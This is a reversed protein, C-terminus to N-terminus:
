AGRPRWRAFGGETNIVQGTIWRAEDTALWAILRAPDDPEGIRGSPFMPESIRRMEETFYGTDVPGPNVTNVRIGADALQDALTMTIGSLAAKASGYAVEGPLPGLGQGSTMFTISGGTRGDHQAAFEQALLIASRTNAAWHGDLQAATLEGLPGDDGSRAHNCVLVDVHGFQRVAEAVVTRPAVPDVLDAHIDALRAGDTLHSRLGDLVDAVTDAGWPQDRDHPVYHHAFLNAGYAAMRRATAYGIGNHRSVGTILVVSGRLPYPDRHIPPIPPHSNMAAGDCVESVVAVPKGAHYPSPWLM